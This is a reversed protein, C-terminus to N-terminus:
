FVTRLDSFTKLHGIKHLGNDILSRVVDNIDATVEQESCFQKIMAAYADEHEGFLTDRNIVHVQEPKKINITATRIDRLALTIALRATVNPTLKTRTQLYQLRDWTKKNLQLRTPFM